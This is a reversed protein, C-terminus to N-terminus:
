NLGHQDFCIDIETLDVDVASYHSSECIDGHYWWQTQVAASEGFLIGTMFKFKISIYLYVATM